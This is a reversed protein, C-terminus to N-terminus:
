DNSDRLTENIEKSITDILSAYEVLNNRISNHFSEISYKPRYESLVKYMKYYTTPNKENVDFYLDLCDNITWHLNIVHAIANDILDEQMHKAKVIRLDLFDIKIPHKSNMWSNFNNIDEELGYNPDLYDKHSRYFIAYKINPFEPLYDDLIRTSLLLNLWSVEVCISDTKSLGARLMRITNLASGRKNNLLEHWCDHGDVKIM